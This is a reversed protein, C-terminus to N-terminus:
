GVLQHQDRVVPAPVAAATRPTTAPRRWTAGPAPNLRERTTGTRLILTLDDWGLMAVRGLSAATLIRSIRYAGAGPVFVIDGVALLDVPVRASGHPWGKM